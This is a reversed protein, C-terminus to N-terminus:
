CRKCVEGPISHKSHIEPGGRAGFEPTTSNTSTPDIGFGSYWFYDRVDTIGPMLQDGGGVSLRWYSKNDDYAGSPGEIPANLGNFTAAFGVGIPTSDDLVGFLYSSNFSDLLNSNIHPIPAFNHAPDTYVM